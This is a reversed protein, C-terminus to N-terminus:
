VEISNLIITDSIKITDTIVTDSIEIADLIITDSIEIEPLIIIVREGAELALWDLLVEQVGVPLMTIPLVAPFEAFADQVPIAIIIQSVIPLEEARVDLLVVARATAITVDLCDCIIDEIGLQTVSGGSETYPLEQVSVNLVPLAQVTDQTIALDEMAADQISMQQVTTKNFSLHDTEVDQVGISQQTAHNLGVEDCSVDQLGALTTISLSLLLHEALADQTDINIFCDQSIELEESQIEQISIRSITDPQNAWEPTGQLTGNTAAVNTQSDFVITGVGEDLHLSCIINLDGDFSYPAAAIATIESSTLEDNFAAFHAITQNDSLAVGNSGLRIVDPNIQTTDDWSSYALSQATGNWYIKCNNNSSLVFALNYWADSTFSPLSCYFAGITTGSTVIQVFIYRGGSMQAITLVIANGGSQEFYFLNIYEGNVNPLSTSKWKFTFTLTQIVPTFTWKAHDAISVYDTASNFYLAM